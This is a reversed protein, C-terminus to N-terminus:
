KDKLNSNLKFNLNIIKQELLELNDIVKLLDVKIFDIQPQIPRAQTENKKETIYGRRHIDPVKVKLPQIVEPDEELLICIMCVRKHVDGSFEDFENGCTICITETM